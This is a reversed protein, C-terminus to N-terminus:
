YRKCHINLKNYEMKKIVHWELNIFNHECYGLIHGLGNIVAEEIDSDMLDRTVDYVWETFCSYTNTMYLPTVGSEGCSINRLGSLHLLRIFADALEDEVTDKIFSQFAGKLIGEYFNEGFMNISETYKDKDISNNYREVKAHSDKRDAEVAEMLESIVLCIYHRDSGNNWGNDTAIKLAKDKLKNLNM